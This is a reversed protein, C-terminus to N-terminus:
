RKGRYIREIRERNLGLVRDFRSLKMGEISPNKDALNELIQVDLDIEHALKPILLWRFLRVGGAPGPYRSKTFALTTVATNNDDIPSCFIFLRWGVM